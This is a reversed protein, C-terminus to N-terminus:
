PSNNKANHRITLYATIDSGVNLTSSEEDTLVGSLALDSYSLFLHKNQDKVRHEDLLNQSVAGEQRSCYAETVLRLSDIRQEAQALHTLSFFVLSVTFLHKM